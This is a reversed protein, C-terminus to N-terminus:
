SGLEDLNILDFFHNVDINEGSGTTAVVEIPMEAKFNIDGVTADSYLTWKVGDWKWLRSSYHVEDNKQLEDAPPLDDFSNYITM